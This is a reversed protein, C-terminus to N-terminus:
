TRDYRLRLEIQNTAEFLAEKISEATEDLSFRHSPGSVSVSGLVQRELTVPASIARIGLNSEENNIAYGRARILELEDFLEETSTITNDTHEELGHEKIIAEIEDEPLEALIAKGAAVTHLAPRWGIRGVTEMANEGTSKYLVVGRGYEETYLWVVEGTKQALFDVEPQAAEFFDQSNRAYIGHQLFKLGLRYEGEDKVVYELAALTSLHAHVTSQAMDLHDALEVVGAGDLEELAEVIAFATIDAKIPRNPTRTQRM